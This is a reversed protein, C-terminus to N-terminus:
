AGGGLRPRGQCKKKFIMLELSNFHNFTAQLLAGFSYSSLPFMKMFCVNLVSYM